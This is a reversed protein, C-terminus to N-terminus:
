KVHDPLEGGVFVTEGASFVGKKGRCAIQIIAGSERNKVDVLSTRRFRGTRAGGATNAPPPIVPELSLVHDLFLLLPGAGLSFTGLGLLVGGGSSGYPFAFLIAIRDLNVARNELLKSVCVESDLQIVPHDHHGVGGAFHPFEPDPDHRAVLDDDCQGGVVEGAPPDDVPM